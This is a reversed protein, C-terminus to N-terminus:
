KQKHFKSENKQSAESEEVTKGYNDFCPFDEKYLKIDTGKPRRIFNSITSGELSYTKLLIDIIQFYVQRDPQINTCKTQKFQKIYLGQIIRMLCHATMGLPLNSLMVCHNRDILVDGENL